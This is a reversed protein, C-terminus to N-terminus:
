GGEAQQLDIVLAADIPSLDLGDAAIVIWFSVAEGAEVVFEPKVTNDIYVRYEIGNNIHPACMVAIEGKNTVEFNLAKLEQGTPFYYWYYDTGPNELEKSATLEINFSAALASDKTSLVQAFGGLTEPLMRLVVVSLMLLGFFCVVRHKTTKIKMKTESVKRNKYKELWFM